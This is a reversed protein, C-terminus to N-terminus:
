KAKKAAYRARRKALKELRIEEKAAAILDAHDIAFKAAMAKLNVYYPAPEPRVPESAMARFMFYM